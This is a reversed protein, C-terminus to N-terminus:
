SAKVEEWSKNWAAQGVISGENKVPPLIVKRFNANLTNEVLPYEYGASISHSPLRKVSEAMTGGSQLAVAMAANSAPSTMYQLYAYVTDLNSTHSTIFYSDSWYYTGDRAPSGYALTVGKPKAFALLAQWSNLAISSEGRVLLDTQDGYTQAWAKINKKIGIWADRVKNLQEQTLM